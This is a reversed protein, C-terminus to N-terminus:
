GEAPVQRTGAPGPRVRAPTREFAAELDGFPGGTAAPVMVSPGSKGPEYRLTVGPAAAAVEVLPLHPSTLRFEAVTGM